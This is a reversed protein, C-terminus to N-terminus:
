SAPDFKKMVNPDFKMDSDSDFVMDASDFTMIVFEFTMDVAADFIMDTSDFAMIVFEFIKAIAADFIRISSEFTMLTLKQVCLRSLTSGGLPASHTVALGRAHCAAISASWSAAFDARICNICVYDRLLTAQVSNVHITAAAVYDYIGARFLHYPTV